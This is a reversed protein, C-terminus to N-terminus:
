STREKQFCLDLNQLIAASPSGTREIFWGVAKLTNIVVSRAAAKLPSRPSNATLNFAFGVDNRNLCRAQPIAKALEWYTPPHLGMAILAAETTDSPFRSSFRRAYRLRLSWPLWNTFWLGTTHGDFPWFRNPTDHIFLHGEPKLVRWAHRLLASREDPHVHEMVASLMVVDFSNSLYPFGDATHEIWVNSVESSLGYEAIRKVAVRHFDRDHEVATVRMGLRALAISSSGVGSGIDLVTLGDANPVFRKISRTLPVGLYDPCEARDIEDKVWAAGKIRALDRLLDASYTTEFELGAPSYANFSYSEGPIHVKRTQGLDVIELNTTM